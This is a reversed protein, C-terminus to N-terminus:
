WIAVSARDKWYDLSRCVAALSLLVKHGQRDPHLAGSLWMAKQWEEDRITPSILCQQAKCHCTTERVTPLATHWTAKWHEAGGM